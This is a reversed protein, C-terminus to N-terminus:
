GRVRPWQRATHILALVWVTEEDVEHVLHDSAHPILERIGPIKGPRGLNPHKALRGAAESFLQDM